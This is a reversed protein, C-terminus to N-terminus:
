FIGAFLDPLIIYSKACSLFTTQIWKVSRPNRKLSVVFEEEAVPPQGPNSFCTQPLFHSQCYTTDFLRGILNSCELYNSTGNITWEQLSNSRNQSCPSSFIQEAKVENTYGLPQCPSNLITLPSTGADAILMSEYRKIVELVGYCLSSHSYVSYNSSYLELANVEHERWVDSSLSILRSAHKHSNPVEMSIQTSAGGLDLAGVTEAFSHTSNPNLISLLCSWTLTRLLGQSGNRLYALSEEPGVYNLQSNVTVWGFQAEDTGSLIEVYSPDFSFGSRSLRNRISDLLVSTASPQSISQFAYFHVCNFYSRRHVRSVSDALNFLYKLLRLGATGGFYIPTSFHSASPIRSSAYSLCPSLFADVGSVNNSFNAIDGARFPPKVVLVLIACRFALSEIKVTIRWSCVKWTVPALSSSFVQVKGNPDLGNTFTYHPTVPVEM